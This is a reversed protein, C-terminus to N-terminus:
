KAFKVGIVAAIITAAVSLVMAITAITNARRSSSLANRAISNAEDAIAIARDERAESRAFRSEESETDRAAIEASAFTRLEGFRGEDYRLRLEATDMAKIEAQREKLSRLTIEELNAM